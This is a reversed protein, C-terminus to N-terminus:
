TYQLISDPDRQVSYLCLLTNGPNTHHSFTQVHSIPLLITYILFFISAGLWSSIILFRLLLVFHSYLLNVDRYVFQLPPFSFFFILSCKGDPYVIGDSPVAKLDTDVYRGLLLEPQGDDLEQPTFPLAEWNHGLM